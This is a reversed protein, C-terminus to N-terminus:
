RAARETTLRRHVLKIGRERATTRVAEAPPEPSVVLLTLGPLKKAGSTEFADILMQDVFAAQPGGVVYGVRKRSGRSFGRGIVRARSSPGDAASEAVHSWAEMRTQANLVVFKPSRGLGQVGSAARRLQTEIEADTLPTACGSSFSIALAFALAIAIRGM